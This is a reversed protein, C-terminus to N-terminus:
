IKELIAEAVDDFTVMGLIAKKDDIVPLADVKYKLMRKIAIDIPTSLHVVVVSPAMFRYLPTDNDQMHLEYLSVVGILQKDKVVYVYPLSSFEKTERKIRLKVKGVTEEPTATFIEPNLLEGIATQPIALLNRLEQQKHFALTTLLQERRKEPLSLLIDVAEDPDIREILRAAREPVMTKLLGQQYPINLNAIVDAALDEDMIDVVRAITKMSMKELHDALDEPLLRKLKTEERKLQVKGRALELPQIDAWSLFTSVPTFGARYILSSILKEGPLWRLIGLIGIDVGAIMLLPGGTTAAGTPPAPKDQIAVDNVRVVKNGKIDIIQQDLLNATVFLENDGLHVRSFEPTLLITPTFSKLHMISVIMRERGQKVVLKTIVPQHSARFVLDHLTGVPKGATGGNAYVPKGKLQAFYLM